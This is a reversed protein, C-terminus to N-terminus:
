PRFLYPWLGVYITILVAIAWLLLNENATQDRDERYEDIFDELTERLRDVAERASGSGPRQLLSDADSAAVSIARASTSDGGAEVLDAAFRVSSLAESISLETKKALEWQASSFSTMGLTGQMDSLVSSLNPLRFQQLNLNAAQVTFSQGLKSIQESLGLPVKASAVETIWREIGAPQVMATTRAISAVIASLQSPYAGALTKMTRSMQDAADWVPKMSATLQAAAKDVSAKQEDRYALLTDAVHSADADHFSPESSCSTVMELVRRMDATDWSFSPSHAVVRAAVFAAAVDEAQKEGKRYEELLRGLQGDIIERLGGWRRITLTARGYRKVCRAKRLFGAASARTVYKREPRDPEDCGSVVAM